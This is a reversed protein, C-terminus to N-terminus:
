LNRVAEADLDTKLPIIKGFFIFGSVINIEDDHYDATVNFTTFIIYDNVKTECAFDILSSAFTMGILVGLQEFGDNDDDTVENRLNNKAKDVIFSKVMERSDNESPNKIAAVVLLSIFIIFFVLYGKRRKRPKVEIHECETDKSCMPVEACSKMESYYDRERQRQAEITKKYTEFSM